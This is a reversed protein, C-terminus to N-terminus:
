GQPVPVRGAVLEDYRVCGIGVVILAGGALQIPLPLEDLILWALAIAFLVESLAVFAALRAGLRRSADIGTAYAAVTGLLVLGVLPVWWRVTSGAFSVDVAEVRFPLLGILSLSGLCVAAVGMGAGAMVLPDLDDVPRASLVFYVVLCAAAGLGWAVGVLDLRVSGTLDLVLVLGGVSVAAGILTLRTPRRGSRAWLWGVLLVPALYELLLAVGVSLRSVAYFYGVQVGAVAIVGYAVLLNAHARLAGWRGRMSWAVPAALVATALVVRLTVTAGPSWGAEILSKAFAGSTGFLAASVLAILLGRSV